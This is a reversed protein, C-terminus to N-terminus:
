VGKVNNSKKMLIIIGYLICSLVFVVTLLLSLISMNLSKTIPDNPAGYCVACASITNSYIFINVLVKL